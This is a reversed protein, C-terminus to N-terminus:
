LFLKKFCILKHILFIKYILESLTKQKSEELGTAPPRGGGPGGTNGAGAEAIAGDVVTIGGLM